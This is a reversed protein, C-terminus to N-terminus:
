MVYQLMLMCAIFSSKVSDRLNNLVSENGKKDVILNRKFQAVKSQLVVDRWACHYNADNPNSKRIINRHVSPCEINNKVMSPVFNKKRHCCTSKVDCVVKMETNGKTMSEFYEAIEKVTKRSSSDPNDFDENNITRCPTMKLLELFKRM